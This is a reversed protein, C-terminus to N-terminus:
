PAQHALPPQEQRGEREECEAGRWLDQTRVPEGAERVWPHSSVSLAQLPNQGQLSQSVSPPPMEPLTSPPQVTPPHLSEWGPAGAPPAAPSCLLPSGSLRPPLAQRHVSGLDSSLLCVCLSPVLRSLHKGLGQSVQFDPALKNPLVFPLCGGSPRSLLSPPAASPEM